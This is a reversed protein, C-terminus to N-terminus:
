RLARDASAPCTCQEHREEGAPFCSFIEDVDVLMLETKRIKATGLLFRTDTGTASAAIPQIQDHRVEIIRMLEDVMLGIMGSNAGRSAKMLIISPGDDAPRAEPALRLHLDVVPVVQDGTYIVGRVYQPLRPLHTMDRAWCVQQVKQVDLGYLGDGLRCALYDASNASPLDTRDDRNANVANTIM